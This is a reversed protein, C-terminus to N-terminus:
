HCAVGEAIVKRAELDRIKICSSMGTTAKYTHGAIADITFSDQYNGKSLGGYECDVTVYVAGPDVIVRKARAPQTIWCDWTWVVTEGMSGRVVAANEIGEVTSLDVEDEYMDFARNLATM